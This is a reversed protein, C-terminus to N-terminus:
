RGCWVVLEEYYTKRIIFFVVCITIIQVFANMKM